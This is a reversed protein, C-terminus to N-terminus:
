NLNVCVKGDREPYSSPASPTTAARPLVFSLFFLALIFFLVGKVLLGAPRALPRLVLILGAIIFIIFLLTTLM